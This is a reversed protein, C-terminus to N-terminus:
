SGISIWEYPNKESAEKDVAPACFGFLAKEGLNSGTSGNIILNSSLFLKDKSFLLDENEGLARSRYLALDAITTYNVGGVQYTGAPDNCQVITSPIGLVDFFHKTGKKSYENVVQEHTAKCVDVTGGDAIVWQMAAILATATNKEDENDLGMLMNNPQYHLSLLVALIENSYVITGTARFYHERMVAILNLHAKLLQQENLVSNRIQAILQQSLERLESRKIQTLNNYIKWRGIM